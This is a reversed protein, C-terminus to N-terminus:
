SIRIKKKILESCKGYSVTGVIKKDCCAILFFREKGKSKLYVSLQADKNSIESELGVIDNEINEKIFNDTITIRFLNHLEEIDSENPRRISVNQM